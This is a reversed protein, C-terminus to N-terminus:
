GAGAQVDIDFGIAQRHREWANDLLLFYGFVQYQFSSPDASSHFPTLVATSYILQGLFLGQAIEVIEDLCLGIPAPGGIMPYRYHFQFVKKKTVGNNMPLISERDPTGLFVYGQRVFPSPGADALAQVSPLPATYNMDLVRMAADAVLIRKDQLNTGWVWHADAQGRWFERDAESMGDDWSGSKLHEAYAGETKWHGESNKRVLDYHPWSAPHSKLERVREPYRKELDASEDLLMSLKRGSIKQFSKGAWPFIFRGVTAWVADLVNPGRRGALLAALAGPFVAHQELKQAVTDGFGLHLNLTAGHYYDFGCCPEGAGYWQVEEPADFSSNESGQGRFVGAEVRPAVGRRFLRNYQEFHRLHDDLRAAKATEAQWRQLMELISEGARLDDRVDGDAAGQPSDEVCFTTFKRRLAEDDTWDLGGQAAARAPVADYGLEHYGSEGFVPRLYPFADDAYAERAFAPDIMLFYGNNQYGYKEESGAPCGPHYSEGVEHEGFLPLRVTGLGYHHTAMVLQGLYVGEGIQVIEDILRTMPYAPELEPWRYNLHYVEKGACEPVVSAAMLALFHGGTKAYPINVEKELNSALLEGLFGPASQDAPRDQLKWALTLAPLGIAQLVNAKVPRFFNRGIRVSSADYREMMWAHGGCRNAFTDRSVPEFTKGMWLGTPGYTVNWLTAMWEINAIASRDKGFRGATQRFYDSDRIGMSVGIMPGDLPVAKGCLFLTRLREVVGAWQERCRNDALIRHYGGLLAFLGGKTEPTLITDLAKALGQGGYHDASLYSGM